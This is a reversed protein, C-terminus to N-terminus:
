TIIRRFTAKIDEQKVDIYTMTTEPKVHGAYIQLEQLSMGKSSADTLFSRRFKHAHVHIGTERGLERLMRQAGQSTLRQYPKRNSVFLAPNKDSRSELYRQLRYAAPDSLYVIRERKGKQGYIVIERNPFDVDSQDLALIENIRAATSYLVEMLALDRISSASDKLMEREESTFAKKVTKPVKIKPIKRAPNKMILDDDAVWGFWASLYRRLTDLYALSVNRSSHYEALFERLDDGNIQDLPKDTWQRLKRIIDEYQKITTEACNELTKCARFRRLATDWLEEYEYM